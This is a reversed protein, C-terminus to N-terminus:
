KPISALIGSEFVSDISNLMQLAYILKHNDLTQDKKEIMSELNVRLEKSSLKMQNVAQLNDNTLKMKPTIVMSLLCEDGFFAASNWGKLKAQEAYWERLEANGAGKRDHEHEQNWYALIETRPMLVAPSNTTRDDPDPFEIKEPM